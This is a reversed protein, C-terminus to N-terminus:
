DRHDADCALNRCRGNAGIGELLAVGNTNRTADGLVVFQNHRGVLNGQDNTLSKMDCRSTTRTRNQNVDRLVTQLVHHRPIPRGVFFNKFTKRTVLGVGLTVRAHDFFCRSENKIRLLWNEIDTTAHQFCPSCIRQAFKCFKNVSRDHCRQHRTTCEGVAM